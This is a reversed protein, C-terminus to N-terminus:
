IERFREVDVPGILTHVGAFIEVSMYSSDARSFITDLAHRVFLTSLEQRVMGYRLGELRLHDGPM